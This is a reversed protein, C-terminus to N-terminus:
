SLVRLLCDGYIVVLNTGSLVPLSLWLFRMNKNSCDSWKLSHNRFTRRSITGRIASFDFSIIMKFLRNHYNHRPLREPQLEPGRHYFVGGRGGAGDVEVPGKDERLAALLVGVVIESQRRQGPTERSVGPLTEVHGVVPEIEVRPRPHRM